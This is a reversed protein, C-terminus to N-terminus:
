RCLQHEAVVPDTSFSMSTYAFAHTMASLARSLTWPATIAHLYPGLDGCHLATCHLATCHLATCHRASLPL